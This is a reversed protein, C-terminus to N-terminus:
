LAKMGESAPTRLTEGMAALEAPTHKSEVIRTEVTPPAIPIGAKFNAGLVSGYQTCTVTSKVQGEACAQEFALKKTIWLKLFEQAEPQMSAGFQNRWDVCTKVDDYENLGTWAVHGKDDLFMAGAFRQFTSAKPKNWVHGRKPNSTQSWFRHGKGPKYELWYRIKCRLRFGYPYDDVVFATEPSVHGSLIQISM